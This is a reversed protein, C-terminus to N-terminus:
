LEKLVERIQGEIMNKSSAIVTENHAALFKKNKKLSAYGEKSIRFCCNFEIIYDTKNQKIVKKTKEKEVLSYGFEEEFLSKDVKM